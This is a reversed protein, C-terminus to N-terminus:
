LNFGGGIIAHGTWNLFLEHLESVFEQKGEEYAFGYITTIRSIEDTARDSVVVSVIKKVEWSVVKFVDLDVGSLIGGAAGIAPM